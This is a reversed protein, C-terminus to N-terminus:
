GWIEPSGPGPKAATLLNYVKFLAWDVRYMGEGEQFPLQRAPVTSEYLLHQIFIEHKIFSCIFLFM